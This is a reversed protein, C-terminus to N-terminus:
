PTHYSPCSQIVPIIFLRCRLLSSKYNISKFTQSTSETEGCIALQQGDPSFQCGSIPREDGMESSQQVLRTVEDLTSSVDSKYEQSAILSCIYFM